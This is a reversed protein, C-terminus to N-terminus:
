LNTITILATNPGTAQYVIRDSILREEAVRKQKIDEATVQTPWYFLFLTAMDVFSGTIMVKKIVNKKTLTYSLHIPTQKEEGATKKLYTTNILVDGNKLFITKGDGVASCEFDRQMYTALETSPDIYDKGAFLALHGSNTLAKVNEQAKVTLGCCVLLIVILNKM